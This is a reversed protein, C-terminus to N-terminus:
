RVAETWHSRLAGFPSIRALSLIQSVAWMSPAAIRKTSIRTPSATLVPLLRRRVQKNRNLRGTVVSTRTCIATSQCMARGNVSIAGRDKDVCRWAVDLKARAGLTTTGRFAGDAGRQDVAAAATDLILAQGADLRLSGAKLQTSMLDMDGRTALAMQEGSELRGGCNDISQADLHLDRDAIVTGSNVFSNVGKLAVDRAANVPGNGLLEIDTRALCVVPVLVRQGDVVRAEVIVVSHTLRAVQEASLEVDPALHLERVLKAGSAMQAQFQVELDSHQGLRARGTLSSIQDRM